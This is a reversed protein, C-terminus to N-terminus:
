RGQLAKVSGIYLEGISGMVSSFSQANSLVLYVLILTVTAEAITDIPFFREAISVM